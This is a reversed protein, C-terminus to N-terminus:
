DRRRARVLKVIRVLVLVSSVGLVGLLILLVMNLQEASEQMVSIRAKLGVVRPYETYLSLVTLSTTFTDADGTWRIEGGIRTYTSVIGGDVRQAQTLLQVWRGAIDSTEYAIGSDAALLARYLYYALALDSTRYTKAADGPENCSADCFGYGDWMDILKMYLGEAGRLDGELLLAIASYALLDPKESWNPDPEGLRYERVVLFTTNFKESSVNGVAVLKRSRPLLEVTYGLVVEHLYDHGGGHQTDLVMALMYSHPSGLEELAARALLNDPSVYIVRSEPNSPNTAARLLGAEPVYQNELFSRMLVLSPGPLVRTEVVRREPLLSPAWLLGLVALTVLITFLILRRDLRRLDM